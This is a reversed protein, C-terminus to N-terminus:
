GVFAGSYMQFIQDIQKWTVEKKPLSADGFLPVFDRPEYARPTKEPDRNVNAIMALITATRWDERTEDFPELESFTM